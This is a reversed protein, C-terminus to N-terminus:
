KEGGKMEERFDEFMDDFWGEFEDGGDGTTYYDHINEKLWKCAKEIWQQKEKAHQEDKWEAMELAAAICETIPVGCFPMHKKAVERAKEENTM